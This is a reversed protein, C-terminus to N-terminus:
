KRSGATIEPPRDAIATHLLQGQTNYVEYQGNETKLIWLGSPHQYLFNKNSASVWGNQGGVIPLYFTGQHLNLSQGDERYVTKTTLDLRKDFTSSWGAGFAGSYLNNSAYGRSVALPFHELGTFDDEFEVKTGSAVLIPNGETCSDPKEPEEPLTDYGWDSSDQSSNSNWDGGGGSWFGRAGGDWCVLQYVKKEGPSSTYKLTCTSAETEQSVIGSLALAALVLYKDKM